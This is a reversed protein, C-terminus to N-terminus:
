EYWIKLENIKFLNDPIIELFNNTKKVYTTIDREYFNDSTDLQIEHDNLMIKAKKNDGAMKFSLYYREASEFEGDGIDFSYSPYTDQNLNNIIRVPSFIFNGNDIVFDIKNEGVVLESPQIAVNRDVSECMIFESNIQQDNLFIKLITQREAESCVISYQLSSSQLYNLEKNSVSFVRSQTFQVIEFEKKLELSKLEYENKGWFALGSSSTYIKLKNVPELYTIPLQIQKYEVGEIEEAFINHGNLEIFLKGKSSVSKFALNISRLNDLDDIEFSIDQDVTGFLSRSVVLSDALVENEPNIKMYMSVPELEHTFSNKVEIDGPKDYLVTGLKQPENCYDQCNENKLLMCRDCAPMLLLYVVIFVAIFIALSAISGKKNKLM